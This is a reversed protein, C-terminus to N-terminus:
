TTRRSQTRWIAHDLEWSTYGTHQAAATILERAQAPSVPHHLHHTLWRLVMRDPKIHHDDGALMWLYGLRIDATGNGPITRLDHEAAALRTPSALLTTVDTLTHVDHALLTEACQLAADAKLIGNRTSTRGRHHIVEAAFRAPGITHIDTVFTDLPQEADTGIVTAAERHPVTVVPLNAHRAYARCARDVSTYRVGISFVADLVCLSLHAWRKMDARRTITLAGVARVLEDVPERDTM